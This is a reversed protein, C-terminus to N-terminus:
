EDLTAEMNFKWKSKEIKYGNSVLYNFVRKTKEGGSFQPSDLHISEFVIHKIKYKNFDLSLLLDGDFGETDTFLHDLYDIKYKDFLEHIHICKVVRTDIKEMPIRHRILHKKRFSSAGLHLESSYFQVERVDDWRVAVQELHINEIGEYCNLISQRHEELPEVLVGLEIDQDKIFNFVDDKASSTGIQVFRM